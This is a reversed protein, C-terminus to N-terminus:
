RPGRARDSRRRESAESIAPRLHVIMQYSRKCGRCRAVAQCETVLPISQALPQLSDGCQPCSVEFQYGGMLREKTRTGTPVEEVRGPSMGGFLRTPRVQASPRSDVDPLRNSRVHCLGQCLFKGRWSRCVQGTFRPLERHTAESHRIAGKPRDRGALRVQLVAMRRLTSRGPLLGTGSVGCVGSPRPWLERRSQTFFVTRNTCESM